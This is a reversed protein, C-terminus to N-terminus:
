NKYYLVLEFEKDDNAQYEKCSLTISKSPLHFPTFGLKTNFEVLNADEITLWITRNTHYKKIADM